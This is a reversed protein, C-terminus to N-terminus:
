GETRLFARNGNIDLIGAADEIVTNDTTNM